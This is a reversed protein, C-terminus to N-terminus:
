NLETVFYLILVSREGVIFYVLRERCDRANAMLDVSAKKRTSQAHYPILTLTILYIFGRRVQQRTPYHVQSFSRGEFKM